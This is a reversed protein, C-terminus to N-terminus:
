LPISRRQNVRPQEQNNETRDGLELQSYVLASLADILPATDNLMPTREIRMGHQRAIQAVGIDLDFLVEVHDSIFGIPSILVDHHGAEAMEVILNEIQPGLWPVPTKAASQYSFMWRDIPRDLKEVLQEVTERLQQEYPDGKELIYKPLSHATFVITVEERKPPPWRKLTANINDVLGHIYQPQAQWSEIFSVTINRGKLAQNLRQRYKGISLESYHPAMCIAIIHEVGDTEMQNVVDAIYPQWHRMGVYVPTDIQRELKDAVSNTIELLPSRGGILKYRETIENILWQPTERGGRIDILYAPVDDLSDPGGYALLFIATKTSATDRGMTIREGLRKSQVLNM